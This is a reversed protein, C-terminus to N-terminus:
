TSNWKKYIEKVVPRIYNYTTITCHGNSDINREIARDIGEWVAEDGFKHLDKNLNNLSKRDIQFYDRNIMRLFEAMLQRFDTHEEDDLFENYNDPYMSEEKAQIKEVEERIMADFVEDINDETIKVDEIKQPKQPQHDEKKAKNKENVKAEKDEKSEKKNNPKVVKATKNEKDTIADEIEKLKALDISYWKTKDFKAKNHNATIVLGLEELSSVTRKLTSKSWFPFDKRIWDDYTNYTWYRDDIYHKDAQKNIRLWYYLQQLFIAENLGIETALRRDLMLIDQSDLLYKSNM